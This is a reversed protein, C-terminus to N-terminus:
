NKTLAVLRLMAPRDYSTGYSPGPPQAPLYLYAVLEEVYAEYALSYNHLVSAVQGKLYYAAQSPASKRLVALAEAYRGQIALNLGRNVIDAAGNDREGPTFQTMSIFEKYARFAAPYRHRAFLKDARYTSQDISYAAPRTLQAAEAWVRAAEKRDGLKSLSVGEQSLDSALNVAADNRRDPDRMYQREFTAGKAFAKSACIFDGNRLHSIGLSSWRYAIDRQVGPELPPPAVPCAVARGVNAAIVLATITSSIYTLAMSKRAM